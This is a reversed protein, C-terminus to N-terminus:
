VTDDKEEESDGAGNDDKTVHSETNGVHDETHSVMIGLTAGM